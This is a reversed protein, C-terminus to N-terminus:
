VVEPLRTLHVIAVAGKATPRGDGNFERRGAFCLQVIAYDVGIQLTDLLFRTRCGRCVDTRRQRASLVRPSLMSQPEGSWVLGVLDFEVVDVRLLEVVHDDVKDRSRASLM